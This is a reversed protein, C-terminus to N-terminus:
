MLFFPVDFHELEERGELTDNLSEEDVLVTSIESGDRTYHSVHHDGYESDSEEVTIFEVHVEMHTGEIYLEWLESIRYYRVGDIM